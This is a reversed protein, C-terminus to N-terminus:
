TYSEETAFLSRHVNSACLTDHDIALTLLHPIPL